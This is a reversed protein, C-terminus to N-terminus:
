SESLIKELEEDESTKEGKGNRWSAFLMTMLGLFVEDLLPVGDPVIVDAAFLAGTILLLHPFRLRTGYRGLLAVAIRQLWVMM